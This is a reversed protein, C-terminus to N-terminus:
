RSAAPPEPPSFDFQAKFGMGGCDNVRVAVTARFCRCPSDWVVSATHQQIHLPGLQRTGTSDCQPASFERAPFLVDYGITAPGLPLRLGADGQSSRGLPVPRLDFLSDVGGQATPSGGAGISSLAAHAGYGKASTFRLAGRVETWDDPEAAPDSPSVPRVALGAYRVTGEAGISGAQLRLTAFSEAPEGTRLDFDQGLEARLHEGAPGLLRTEVSGRLQRYDGTPAASLLRAGAFPAAVGPPIEGARDWGDYGFAPLRDGLVTTGARLALRPVILHRLAGYSRSLETELAAAVVGWADLIPDAAADFAYASAAWRLSTSFRLWRGIPVPITLEARLLARTAALREGPEFRGDLEGPSASATWGRDGPGIGDSGGDSTPGSFPAFRALEARGSALLGGLIPTPLLQASLAPGRHFSPLGAGFVGFDLGEVGALSSDASLPLLWAGSAELVADGRRHSVLLASRRYRADRQLLDGSFDRVYLPDGVLDLEVRLDTRDGIAQAHGGTLAMRAGKEGGPESDLDYLWDLRLKGQARAAPTWRLELAGDFGRVSPSGADVESRPRGFAWGAWATLDASRGLTLFFPEALTLGSAESSGIEPLLLGTQREGLPVWLWPLALVPIAREMFPPVVWLAPWTLIARDGARVDASRARLEWPPPAGSPCNCLTGRAGTLTINGDATGTAREARLTLRRRPVGEAEEPTTASALARADDAFLISPAEAEYTGGLEGRIARAVIARPGDILLAGGTVEILGTGPQYSAEPARLVLTGRRLVVGGKLRAMGAGVDWIAEQSEVHIPPQGGGAETPPAAAAQALLAAAALEIFPV